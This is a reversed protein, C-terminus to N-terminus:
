NGPIPPKLLSKGPAKIIEQSIMRSNGFSEQEQYKPGIERFNLDRRKEPMMDEKPINKRKLKRAAQTL